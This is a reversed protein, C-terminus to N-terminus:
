CLLVKKEASRKRWELAKCLCCFGLTGLGMVMYFVNITIVVWSVVDQYRKTDAAGYHSDAAVSCAMIGCCSLVLVSTALVQLRFIAVSRWPRVALMLMLYIGLVLAVLLVQHLEHLMVSLGLVALVLRQFDLISDWTLVLLRRLSVLSESLLHPRGSGPDESRSWGVWQWVRQWSLTGSAGRKHNDDPSREAWKDYQVDYDAFRFDLSSGMFQLLGRWGGVHPSNCPAGTREPNLTNHRAKYVLVMAIVSPYIICLVLLLLGLALAFAGWWRDLRQTPCQMRVDLVWHKSVPADSATPMKLCMLMGVAYSAMTSYFDFGIVLWTTVV